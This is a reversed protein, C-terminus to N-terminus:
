QYAKAAEKIAANSRRVANDLATKADQKGNLLAEIEENQIDRVQPMNVLRIGKSNETPEKGMMQMIPIERGPNKDYFGEKKTQEYAAMTAPLYGSVQHLRVQVNSKSLFSFFQAVGKYDAAPKGAFVWLSAGGPVTNQPAGAAEPYYPLSSTGFDMGAKVMDGLGGSSEPMIACEGSLFKSKAESTRGGYQFTGDKQLEALTQFHRINLPGNIKLEPTLSALGNQGTAYPLNNWASFNELHIWTLWTSTMGCSQGSAKIKKAAEFVEPWTKLPVEPDLGAKRFSAKNYYLIPSSSNFPFSLMTGDADSYYSVIGSLYDGKNFSQGGEKMVEAIPKIASKAGMMVGTGVDFVQIIHPPQRARFAAIGANLTEPYTGKYVPVVKYESQTANFEKALNEVLENNAGPMAHWWQIETQAQAPAPVATAGAMAVLAFASAAITAHIRHM